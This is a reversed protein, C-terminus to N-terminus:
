DYHGKRVSIEVVDDRGDLANDIRELTNDTWRMNGCNGIIDERVSKLLDVYFINLAEASFKAPNMENGRRHKSKSTAFAPNSIKSM